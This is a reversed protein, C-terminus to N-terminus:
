KWDRRKGKRKKNRNYKEWEDYEGFMKDRWKHKGKDKFTNSM